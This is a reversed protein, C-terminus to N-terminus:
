QCIGEQRRGSPLPIRAGHHLLPIQLYMLLYIPPLSHQGWPFSWVWLSSGQFFTAPGGRGSLAGRESLAAWWPVIAGEIKLNPTTTPNPSDSVPTAISISPTGRAFTKCLSGGLDAGTPSVTGRAM